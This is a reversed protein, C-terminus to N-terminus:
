HRVPTVVLDVRAIFDAHVGCTERACTGLCLVLADRRGKLDPFADPDSQEPGLGCFAIGGVGFRLDLTRGIRQLLEAMVGSADLLGLADPEALEAKQLLGLASLNQALGVSVKSSVPSIRGSGTLAPWLWSRGNRDLLDFTFDGDLLAAGEARGGLALGFVPCEGNEAGIGAPLAIAGFSLGHILDANEDVVADPEAGCDGSRPRRACGGASRCEEEPRCALSGVECASGFKPPLLTLGRAEGEGSPHPLCPGTTESQRLHPRVSVFCTWDVGSNSPGSGTGGGMGFGERLRHLGESMEADRIGTRWRAYGVSHPQQQMFGYWDLGGDCAPSDGGLDRFTDADFPMAFRSSRMITRVKSAKPINCGTGM